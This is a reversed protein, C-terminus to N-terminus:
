RKQSYICTGGEFFGNNNLHQASNAQVDLAVGFPALGNYLM